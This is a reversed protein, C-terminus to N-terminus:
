ATISEKPPLDINNEMQTKTHKKKYIKRGFKQLPSFIDSNLQGSLDTSVIFVVQLLLLFQVSFIIKNM